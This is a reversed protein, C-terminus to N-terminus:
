KSGDTEEEFTAMFEDFNDPGLTGGNGIFDYIADLVEGDTYTSTDTM